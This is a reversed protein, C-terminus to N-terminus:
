SFIGAPYNRSVAADDRELWRNPRIKYKAEIIERFTPLGELSYPHFLELSTELPHQFGSGETEVPFVDLFFTKVIITGPTVNV